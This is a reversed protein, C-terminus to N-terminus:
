AQAQGGRARQEDLHRMVEPELAHCRAQLCYRPEGAFADIARQGDGSLSRVQLGVPFEGVHQPCRAAHMKQPRDVIRPGQIRRGIGQDMRSEIVGAAKGAQFRQGAAQRHCDAAGIAGRSQQGMPDLAPHDVIGGIRRLDSKAHLLQEIRAQAFRHARLRAHQCFM